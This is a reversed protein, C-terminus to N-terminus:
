YVGDVIFGAATIGCYDTTKYDLQKSSNLKLDYVTFNFEGNTYGFISIGNDSRGTPRVYTNVDGSVYTEAIVLRAVSAIPPITSSASITTFTSATGSDLVVTKNTAMYNAQTNIEVDYMIVPNYPWGSAVYCPIINGSSDNRVCYPLQRKHTYGAPLTINGTQSENTASFVASVTGDSEKRILYVYYWTGNQETGTDLGAAGSNTLALVIPDVVEILNLNTSDLALLGTKLTISSSNTYEPAPGAIYKKLETVHDALVSSLTSPSVAVTDLSGALTEEETALRIKGKTTTSADPVVDAANQASVAAEDAFTQAALASAAASTQSVAASVAAAEADEVAGSINSLDLPTNKYKNEASSFYFSRGDVPEEFEINELLTNPPLSPIKALKELVEEAILSLKDLGQEHANAPFAENEQYDTVQDNFTSREIYIKYLSSPAIGFIVDAGNAYVGNVPTGSVTYDVGETQLTRVNTSILVKYVKIDATAYFYHNFPFSTTVGNGTYLESAGNPTFTM